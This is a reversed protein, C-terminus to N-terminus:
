IDMESIEQFSTEGVDWDDAFTEVTAQEDAEVVVTGGHTDHPCTCLLTDDKISARFESVARELADFAGDCEEAQHSNEVIYTGM